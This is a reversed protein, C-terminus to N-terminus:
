TGAGTIEVPATGSPWKASASVDADFWAGTASMMVAALLLNM